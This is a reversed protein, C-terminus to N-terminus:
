HSSNAAARCPTSDRLSCGPARECATAQLLLLLLALVPCDATAPMPSGHQPQAPPPQPRRPKWAPRCTAGHACCHSISWLVLWIMWLVWSLLSRLVCPGTLCCCSAALPRRCGGEDSTLGEDDQESELEEQAAIVGLPEAERHYDRM